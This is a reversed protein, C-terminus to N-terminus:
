GGKNKGQEIRGYIGQRGQLERLVKVECGGRGLHSSATCVVKSAVEPFRFQGLHRVISHGWLHRRSSMFAVLVM